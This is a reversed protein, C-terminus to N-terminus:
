LPKYRDSLYVKDSSIRKQNSHQQGNLRHHSAM